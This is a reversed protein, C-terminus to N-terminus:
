SRRTAQAPPVHAVVPFGGRAGNALGGLNYVQAVGLRRLTEAAEGSRRGTRCYLVLPRDGHAQLVAPIRGEAAEQRIRPLPLHIAGELKGTEALEAAERVDVLLAGRAVLERAQAADVLPVPAALIQEQPATGSTSNSQSCAAPAALAISLALLLRGSM